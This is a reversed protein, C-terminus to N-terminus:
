TRPALSHLAARPVRGRRRRDGHGLRVPRAVAHHARGRRRLHRVGLVGGAAVGARARRHARDPGDRRRRRHQPAAGRVGHVLARPRLQQGFQDIGRAPPPPVNQYVIDPSALALAADVDLAELAALFARVVGIPDDAPERDSPAAPGTATMLGGRRDTRCAGLCHGRLRRRPRWSSPSTARSATAPARSTSSAPTLAAGCWSPRTPTTSWRSRCCGGCWCSRCELGSVADWLSGFLPRDEARPSDAGGEPRRGTAPTAGCGAATTRSCPTTSSAGACRRSPGPRTSPSPAPWCTTSARSARPGTSSPSSRRRRTATSGPRSTSAGAVARPRTGHRGPGPQHGRRAVHRGGGPRRAGARPRRGGRRPRQEGPRPRRAGGDSHGHGPLDVAVLPRDLALAVTDWTHANQAGGHLFVLEPEAEGWVLALRRGPEVEVALRRVAATRRLAPRVRQRERPVALVRRVPGARGADHRWCRVRGGPRAAPAAACM